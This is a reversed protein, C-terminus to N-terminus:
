WLSNGNGDQSAAQGPHTQIKWQSHTIATQLDYPKDPLFAQYIM